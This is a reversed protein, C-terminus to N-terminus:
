GPCQTDQSLNKMPNMLTVPYMLMVPYYGLNNCSRKVCKDIEMQHQITQAKVGNKKQVCCRLHLHVVREGKVTYTAHFRTMKCIKYVKEIWIVNKMLGSKCKDLM